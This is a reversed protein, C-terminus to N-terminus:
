YRELNYFSGYPKLNLNKDRLSYLLHEETGTFRLKFQVKGTGLADVTIANIGSTNKLLNQIEVWNRLSSFAYLVTIENQAQSITRSQQQFKATLKDSISQVADAFLQSGRSGPVKVTEQAGDNYAYLTIDLGDIGDYVADAIYINRTQNDTAIQDLIIGNMQLAQAATIKNEANTGLSYIKVPGSTQPNNEWAQRWLNGAEWLLPTDTSFERFLPIIIVKSEAVMAFPANKEQLYAKLIDSNITIKLQALYRVDSVKESQVTVEKIFNLIQNDNLNNLVAAGSPTTIRGAVTMVAQRNAENMAKERAVSANESTVDVSIDTEYLSMDEAAAPRGALLCLLSLLPLLKPM